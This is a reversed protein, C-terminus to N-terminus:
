KMTWTTSIYYYPWPVADWLHFHHGAYNLCSHLHPNQIKSIPRMFHRIRWSRSQVPLEAWIWRRLEEVNQRFFFKALLKIVVTYMQNGVKRWELSQKGTPTTWPHIKTLIINTSPWQSLIRRCPLPTTTKCCNTLLTSGFVFWYLRQKQSSSSWESNLSPCLHQTVQHNCMSQIINLFTKCQFM